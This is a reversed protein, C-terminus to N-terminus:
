AEGEGEGAAIATHGNTCGWSWILVRNHKRHIADDPATRTGTSRAIATPRIRGRRGRARRTACRGGGLALPQENSSVAISPCGNRLRVREETIEEFDKIKIHSATLSYVRKEGPEPSTMTSTARWDNIRTYRAAASTRCGTRTSITPPAPRATLM